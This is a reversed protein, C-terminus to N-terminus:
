QEVRERREIGKASLAFGKSEEIIEDALFLEELGKIVYNESYFLPSQLFKEIDQPEAAMMLQTAVRIGAPSYGDQRWAAIHADDQYAQLAILRQQVQCLPHESPTLGKYILQF